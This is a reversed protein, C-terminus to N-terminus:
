SLHLTYYYAYKNSLKAEIFIKLIFFSKKMKFDFDNKPNELLKKKM